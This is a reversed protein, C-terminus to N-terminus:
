ARNLDDPMVFDYNAFRAGVFRQGNLVTHMATLLDAAADSKVVYGHAGTRLAGQVLEPCLEVSVFVIKSHPAVSLIPKAADIGNLRPLGVDLLIVDPQLEGAKRLGEMADSAEGVVQWEPFNQLM